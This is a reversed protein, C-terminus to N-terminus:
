DKEMNEWCEPCIGSREYEAKDIADKLLNFIPLKCDMCIKRTLSDAKTIGYLKLAIDEPLAIM